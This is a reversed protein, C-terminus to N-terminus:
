PATSQVNPVRFVQGTHQPLNANWHGNTTRLTLSFYGDLREFDCDIKEDRVISEIMDLAATHSEAAIKAGRKGHFKEIDYYRDDLAHTIHATTRGTEGSGINGDDLVAVKKGAKALFYATTMGAIGGGVVVIDVSIDRDLKKVDLTAAEAFWSSETRGATRNEWGEINGAGLIDERSQM